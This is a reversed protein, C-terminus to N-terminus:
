VSVLPFEPLNAPAAAGPKARAFVESAPARTIQSQLAAWLAARQAYNPHKKKGLLKDMESASLVERPAYAEDGLDAVLPEVAKPDAWKRNGEKGRQLAWGPIAKGMKARSFGEEHLGKYWAEFRAKFEEAADLAAGLAADDLTLPAAASKEAVIPFMDLMQKSQAACKGRLPCWECGKDTPTLHPKLDAPPNLYLAHAKQIGARIRAVQEELEEVTYTWTDYKVAGRPQHISVKVYKWEALMAYRRLAAAGYIILQENDRAVVPRFGFKLDDVHITESDFDLTIADGTGGQDPVGVVDSTDLRVEYFQQGPLARIADVYKQAHAAGEETITFKFGDAELTQGVYDECVSQTFPKSLAELVKASIEHYVTGEAAFKSPPDEVGKCAAAAGACRVDRHAKSPSFLSHTGSM